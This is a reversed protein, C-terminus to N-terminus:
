RYYGLHSMGVVMSCRETERLVKVVERSAVVPDRYTIGKFNAPTILGVPSIGLGFLGIRVGGVERVVYQKVKSELPTGRM